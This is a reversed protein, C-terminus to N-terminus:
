KTLPHTFIFLLNPIKLADFAHNFWLVFIFWIETETSLKRVCKIHLRIFHDIKDITTICCIPCATLSFSANANRFCKMKIMDTITPYITFPLHHSM